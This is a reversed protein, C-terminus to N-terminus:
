RSQLVTKKQKEKENISCNHNALQRSKFKSKIKIGNVTKMQMSRKPDDNEDENVM